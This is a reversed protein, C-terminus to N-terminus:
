HKAALEKVVSEACDKVSAGRMMAQIMKDALEKVIIPIMKEFEDQMQQVQRRIDRNSQIAMNALDLARDTKSYQQLRGYAGNMLNQLTRESVQYKELTAATGNKDLYNSIQRYNKKLYIILNGGKRAKGDGPIEWINSRCNPCVRPKISRGAWM